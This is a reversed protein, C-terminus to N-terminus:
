TSTVCRPPLVSMSASVRGLEVGSIMVMGGRACEPRSRTNRKRRARSPAWSPSGSMWRIYSSRSIARYDCRVRNIFRLILRSWSHCAGRVDSTFDPGVADDYPFGAIPIIDLPVPIYLLINYTAFLIRTHALTLLIEHSVFSHSAVPRSRVIPLAFTYTLIYTNTHTHTYTHTHTLTHAIHITHM